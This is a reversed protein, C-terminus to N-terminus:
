TDENPLQGQLILQLVQMEGSVGTIDFFRQLRSIGYSPWDGVAGRYRPAEFRPLGSGFLQERYSVRNFGQFYLAHDFHAEEHPRRRDVGM